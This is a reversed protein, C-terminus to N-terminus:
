SETHFNTFSEIGDRHSIAVEFNDKYGGIAIMMVPLENKPIKFEKKIKKLLSYELGLTLPITAIGLYNFSYILTMGFLSADVYGLNSERTYYRNMDASILIVASANKHFAKSGQQMVMLRDKENGEYIHVRYAQRNCASPSKRAMELAKRIVEKDVKTGNFDRVSYRNSVMEEFNGKGSKVADEGKITRTGAYEKRFADAPCLSKLVVFNSELQNFEESDSNHIKQDKIYYEMLSLPVELCEEYGFKEVYRKLKGTLDNAKSLGFVARRDPLSFSKELAHTLMLIDSFSSSPRSSNNARANEKAFDLCEGCKTKLLKFFLASPSEKIKQILSM